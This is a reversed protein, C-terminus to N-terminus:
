SRTGNSKKILSGYVERVYSAPTHNGMGVSAQILNGDKDVVNLVRKGDTTKEAAFKHDKEAMKGKVISKLIDKDSIVLDKTIEPDFAVSEWASDAYVDMEIQERMTPLEAKLKDLEAKLQAATQKVQNEGALASEYKAKIAAVQEDVTGVEKKTKVEIGHKILAEIRTKEDMATFEEDTVVVGVEALAARARKESEVYAYKKGDLDAKVRIKKGEREIIGEQLAQSKATFLATIADDDAADGLATIDEAGFGFSTLIKTANAALVAPDPDGHKTFKLLSDVRFPLKSKILFTNM